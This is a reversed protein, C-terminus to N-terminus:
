AARAQVRAPPRALLQQVHALLDALAFPKTLFDDAGTHAAEQAEPFSLATLVLVPVGATAPDHKLLHLLRFGTVKPLHLDLVILDPRDRELAYLAELGDSAAEATYGADCLFAVLLDAIDPDDEVVLVKAPIPAGVRRRNPTAGRPDVLAAMSM